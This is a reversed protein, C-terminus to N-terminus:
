TKLAKWKERLRKLTTCVELSTKLEKAGFAIAALRRKPVLDYHPTSANGQFWRRKLGIKRAIEHLEEETDALLHCSPTQKGYMVWGHNMLPDVYVAM